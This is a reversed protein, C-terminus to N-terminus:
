LTCSHLLPPELFTCRESCPQVVRFEAPEGAAPGCESAWIPLIGDRCLVLRWLNQHLINVKSVRGDVAARKRTRCSYVLAWKGPRFGLGTESRGPHSPSSREWWCSPSEAAVGRWLLASAPEASAGVLGTLPKAPRVLPKVARGLPQSAERAQERTGPVRDERPGDGQLVLVLRAILRVWWDPRHRGAAMKLGALM